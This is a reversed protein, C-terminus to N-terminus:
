KAKGTGPRHTTVTGDKDQVQVILPTFPEIPDDGAEQAQEFKAVSSGLDGIAEVVEDLYESAQLDAHHEVLSDILDRAQEIKGILAQRALKVIEDDM